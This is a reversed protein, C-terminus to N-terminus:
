VPQEEVKGRSKKDHHLRRLVNYLLGRDLPKTLYENMGMALYRERDGQLANASLGVIQVERVPSDLQRILKTAAVGDMIPMNIDMLIVDFYRRQVLNLAAGGNEVLEV